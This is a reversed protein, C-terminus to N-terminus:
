KKGNDKYADCKSPERDMGLMMIVFMVVKEGHYYRSAHDDRSERCM